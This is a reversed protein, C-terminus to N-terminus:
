LQWSFWRNLNNILHEGVSATPLNSSLKEWQSVIGRGLPTLRFSDTIGQGDVERRLVGVKILWMLEREARVETIPRATYGQNQGIKLAIAGLPVSQEIMTTFLTLQFPSCRLAREARKVTVPSYQISQSKNTVTSTM